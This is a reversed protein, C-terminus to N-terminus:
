EACVESATLVLGRQGARSQRQHWRSSDVGYILNRRVVHRLPRSTFVGSVVTVIPGSRTEDKPERDRVSSDSVPSPDTMCSRACYNQWLKAVFRLQNRDVTKQPLFLLM